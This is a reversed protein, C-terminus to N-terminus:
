HNQKFAMARTPLFHRPDSSHRGTPSKQTEPAMKRKSLHNEFIRCGVNELIPRSCVTYNSFTATLVRRVGTAVPPPAMASNLRLLHNPTLPYTVSGAELTIDMLPRSNVISEVETLLTHLDDDTLTAKPTVALFVKRVTRIMREGVGGMNSANPLNFSWSTGQQRLYNSVGSSKNNLYSDSLIREAGVFNTGNDSCICKVPGRRALFRKLANIFASSTLDYSLELHIARTKMCTFLAVM